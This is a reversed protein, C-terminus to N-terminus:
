RKKTTPLVVTATSTADGTLLCEFDVTEGRKGRIPQYRSLVRLAAMLDPPLSELKQEDRNKLRDVLAPTALSTLTAVTEFDMDGLVGSVTGIVSAGLTAAGALARRLQWAEQVTTAVANAVRALIGPHEKNAVRPNTIIEVNENIINGMSQIGRQYAATDILAPSGPCIVQGTPNPEVTWTTTVYITMQAIAATQIDFRVVTEGSGGQTSLPVWDDDFEDIKFLIYRASPKADTFFGRSAQPASMASQVFGIITTGQQPYCYAAWEGQINQSAVTPEVVVEMGSCRYRFGIPLLSAYGISDQVTETAVAGAAWTASAYVKSRAFPSAIFTLSNVSGNAQTNYQYRDTITTSFSPANSTEGAAVTNRYVSPFYQGMVTRAAEQMSAAALPCLGGKLMGERRIKRRDFGKYPLSVVRGPAPKNTASKPVSLREVRVAARTKPKSASRVPKPRVVSSSNARKGRASINTYVSHTPDVRVRGNSVSYMVFPLLKPLCNPDAGVSGVAM